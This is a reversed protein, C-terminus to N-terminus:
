APYIIEIRDQVSPEILNHLGFNHVKIVVPEVFKSVLISKM